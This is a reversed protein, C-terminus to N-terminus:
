EVGCVFFGGCTTGAMSASNEKREAKKFRGVTMVLVGGGGPYRVIARWSVRNEAHWRAIYENWKYQHPCWVVRMSVHHAESEKRMRIRENLNNLKTCPVSGNLAPLLLSLEVM